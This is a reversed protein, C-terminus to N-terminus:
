SRTGDDYKDGFLKKKEITEFDAKYKEETSSSSKIKSGNKEEEKEQNLDEVPLPDVNKESEFKDFISEKETKYQEPRDMKGDQLKKDSM